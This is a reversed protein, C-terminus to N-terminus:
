KSEQSKNGSKQIKDVAAAAGAGAGAVIGGGITGVTGAIATATAKAIQNKNPMIEEQKASVVMVKSSFYCNDVNRSEKSV